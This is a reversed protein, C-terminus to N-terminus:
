HYRVSEEDAATPIIASGHGHLTLLQAVLERAQDDAVHHEAWSLLEAPRGPTSRVSRWTPHNLLLLLRAAGDNTQAAEEDTLEDLDGILLDRLGNSWLIQARRRTAQEYERWLGHDGALGFRVVDALLQMATRNGARARKTSASALELAAGMPGAAAYETAAVYSSVAEHAEGLALLKVDIGSRKTPAALGLKVLRRAWPTFMAAGLEHADFETMAGDVFVLVHLHPHWGNAGHTVDLRKIWGVGHAGYLRRFRKDQRIAAWADGLGDLLGALRQARSHRMTLTVLLVRGGNLTHSSLAAAIEVAREAAIKPGCMPCTFRSGCTQLGSYNARDARKEVAVLDSTPVLRCKRQREISSFAWLGRLAEWSAARGARNGCQKAEEWSPGGGGAAGASATSERRVRVEAASRAPVLEPVGAL